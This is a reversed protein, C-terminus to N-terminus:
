TPDCPSQSLASCLPLTAACAGSAGFLWVYFVKTNDLEWPQFIVINSMLFVAFMGFQFRRQVTTLPLVFMAVVNLPVFYLLSKWWLSHLSLM